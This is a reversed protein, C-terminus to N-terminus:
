IYLKADTKSMYDYEKCKPCQLTVDGSADKGTYNCSNCIMDILDKKIPANPTVVDLEWRSQNLWTSLHPIHKDELEKWTYKIQNKLSGLITEHSVLGGIIVDYYKGRNRDRDFRRKSPYTTWFELFMPEFEKKTLVEGDSGIVGKGLFEVVQKKLSKPEEKFIERVSPYLSNQRRHGIKQNKEFGLFEVVQNESFGILGVAEIRLLSNRITGVSSKWSPIVLNKLEFLNGTLRGYDDTFPLM